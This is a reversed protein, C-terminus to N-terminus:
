GEVGETKDRSKDIGSYDDSPHVVEKQTEKSDLPKKPLPQAAKKLLSEFVKKTLPKPERTDRIKSM